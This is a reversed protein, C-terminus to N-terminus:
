YGVSVISQDLLTHATTKEFITSGSKQVVMDALEAGSIGVLYRPIGQGFQRSVGSSPFKDYFVGITYGYKRVGCDMMVALNRM